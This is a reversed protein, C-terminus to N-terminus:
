IRCILLSYHKSSNPFLKHRIAKALPRAAIQRKLATYILNRKRDKRSAGFAFRGCMIIHRMVQEDNGM